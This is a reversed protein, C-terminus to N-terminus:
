SVDVTRLTWRGKKKGWGHVALAWGAERVAGVNPADAIKRIRAAVHDASTAQVGLTVGDRIAIIDIFGFLDRRVNAGPVWREVVEATWGDDRLHALSRSTPTATM